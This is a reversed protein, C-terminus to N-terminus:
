RSMGVATSSRPSDDFCAPPTTCGWTSDSRTPRRRVSTLWGAHRGAQYTSEPLQRLLEQLFVKLDCHIALDPRVTGDYACVAISVLGLGLARLLPIELGHFRRLREWRALREEEPDLILRQELAAVSDEM